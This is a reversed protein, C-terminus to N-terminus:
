VPKRQPLDLFPYDFTDIHELYSGDLYKTDEGPNMKRSIYNDADQRRQEPLDRTCDLGHLLNNWFQEADDALPMRVSLGVIAIDGPRITAPTAVPLYSVLRSRRLQTVFVWNM